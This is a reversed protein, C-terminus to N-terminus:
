FVDSVSSSTLLGELTQCTLGDGDGTKRAADCRPCSKKFEANLWGLRRRQLFDRRTTPMGEEDRGEEAAAAARGEGDAQHGRGELRVREEHGELDGLAVQPPVVAVRRHDM